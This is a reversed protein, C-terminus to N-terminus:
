QNVSIQADRLWTAINAIGAHLGIVPSWNLEETAKVIDLVSCPIDIQRADQLKVCIPQGLAEAILDIIELQNTGIGSAVNYVLNPVSRNLAKTIAICVDTIYIFDRTITGDGFVVVSEGRLARNVSTTIFGQGREIRQLPGYPNAIRLVCASLKRTLSFLSVLNENIIHYLAYTSNALTSQFEPTPILRSDGYVTGGSSLYVFRSNHRCAFELLASMWFETNALDAPVIKEAEIITSPGAAFIINSCREIIPVDRAFELIDSRVYRVRPFLRLPASRSMVTIDDIGSRLFHQVLNTGIFGAGIILTTM